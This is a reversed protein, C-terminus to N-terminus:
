HMEKKKWKRTNEDFQDLGRSIIYYDPATTNPKAQNNYYSSAAEEFTDFYNYWQDSGWGRESEYMWVRFNGQKKETM